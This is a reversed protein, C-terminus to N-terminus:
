QGDSSPHLAVSSRTPAAFRPNSRETSDARASTAAAVRVQAHVGDRRPITQQQGFVRLTQGQQFPLEPLPKYRLAEQSIVWQGGGGRSATLKTTNSCVIPQIYPDSALPHLMFQEDYGSATNPENRYPQLITQQFLYPSWPETKIDIPKDSLKSKSCMADFRARVILRTIGDRWCLVCPQPQFHEPLAHNHYFFSWDDINM